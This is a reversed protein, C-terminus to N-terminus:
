ESPLTHRESSPVQFPGLQHTGREAEMRRRIDLLTRDIREDDWKRIERAPVESFGAIIDRKDANAAIREFEDPFIRTAGKANEAECIWGTSKGIKKAAEKITLQNVLRLKKLIVGYNDM